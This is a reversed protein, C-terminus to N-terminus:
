GPGGEECEDACIWVGNFYGGDCSCGEGPPGVLPITMSGPKGEGRQRATTLRGVTEEDYRSNCDPCLGIEGQGTLEVPGGSYPAVEVNLIEIPITWKSCTPCYARLEAKAVTVISVLEAARGEIALKIRM